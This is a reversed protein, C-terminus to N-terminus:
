APLHPPCAIMMTMMMMMMMMMMRCSWNLCRVILLDFSARVMMLKKLNTRMEQGKYLLDSEHTAGMEEWEKRTLLNVFVSHGALLLQYAM